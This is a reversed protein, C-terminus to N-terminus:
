RYNSTRIAISQHRYNPLSGDAKRDIFAALHGQRSIRLSEYTGNWGILPIVAESASQQLYIQVETRLQGLIYVGGDSRIVYEDIHGDFNKALQIVQGSTLDLSFLHTQTDNFDKSNVSFSRSLFLVRQGDPSIQFRNELAVNDTLKTVTSGNHLDISFLEFDPLSETPLSLSNFILKGKGSLYLLKGISFSVNTITNKQVSPMSGNEKIDIRYVISQRNKKSNRYQIVDRWEEDDTDTIAPASTALFLSSDHDSWTFALPVDKGIEIPFLDNSALSYLYIRHQESSSDGPSRRYRKSKKTKSTIEDVILAIWKGSPSWKPEISIDSRGTILRRTRQAIDYIWLNHEYSSTNWSPQTSEFLLYEGNPSFSLLSFTTQDFFEDLTIKPKTQVASSSIIVLVILYCVIVILRM